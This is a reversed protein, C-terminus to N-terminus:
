SRGRARATVAIAIINAAAFSAAGVVATYDALNAAGPIALLPLRALAVVGFVVSLAIAAAVEWGYRMQSMVRPLGPYVLVVITTGACFGLMLLTAGWQGEAIFRPITSLGFAFQLAVLGYSFVKALVLRRDTM